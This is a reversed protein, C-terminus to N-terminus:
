GLSDSFHKIVGESECFYSSDYAWSVLMFVCICTEEVVELSLLTFATRQMFKHENLAAKTLTVKLYMLRLPTDITSNM